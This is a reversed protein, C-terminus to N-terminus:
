HRVKGLLRKAAARELKPRILEDGVRALLAQDGLGLLTEEVHGYQFRKRTWGNRATVELRMRASGPWGVSSSWRRAMGLRKARPGDFEKALYKAMYAGAGAGSTVPIAHVIYSDQTVAKWARACTHALCGCEEFKETYNGINFDKGGWCKIRKESPVPGAVLHFHPIGKKTLEM